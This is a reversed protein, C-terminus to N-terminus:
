PFIYIKQAHRGHDQASCTRAMDCVILACAGRSQQTARLHLGISAQGVIRSTGAPLIRWRLGKCFSAIDLRLVRDVLCTSGTVAPLHSVRSHDRCVIKLLSHTYQLYRVPYM